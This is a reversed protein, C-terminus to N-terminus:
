YDNIAVDCCIYGGISYILSISLTAITTMYRAKSIYLSYAACAINLLAYITMFYPHRTDYLVFLSLSIMLWTLPILLLNVSDKLTFSNEKRYFRGFIGLIFISVLPYFLYPLFLLSFKFPYITYIVLIDKPSFM